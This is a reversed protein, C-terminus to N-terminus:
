RAGILWHEVDYLGLYGNGFLLRHSGDDPISNGKYVLELTVTGNTSIDDAHATLTRTGTTEKFSLQGYWPAYGEPGPIHLGDDLSSIHRGPVGDVVFRADLQASTGIRLFATNLKLKDGPAVGIVVRRPVNGSSDAAVTWNAQPHLTIIGVGLDTDYWVPVVGGGAGGPDGPDGKPGAPGQAGAAGAPGTAGAPGAPGTPGAPGPVLVYEGDDAPVPTLDALDITGMAHLLRVYYSRGPRDIRYTGMFPEVGVADNAPLVMSWSGGAGPVAPVTGRLIVGHEASVLEGAAPTVHVYDPSNAGDPRAIHGTLTVTQIGPPLAM